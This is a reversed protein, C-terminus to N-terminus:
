FTAKDKIFKKTIKKYASEKLQGTRSCTVGMIKSIYDLTQPEESGIENIKKGISYLLVKYEKETLIEKLEQWFKEFYLKNVIDDYVLEDNSIFQELNCEDDESNVYCDLSLVEQKIRNLLRIHDESYGLNVKCESITPEIGNEKLYQIIYKNLREIDENDKVSIKFKRSYSNIAREIYTRIWYKAYTCLGAGKNIDYNEIAKILGLNGEQIIDLIDIGMSQCRIYYKNAIFIVFRLNSNILKIKAFEDGNHYMKFLRKEEELNLLPYQAMESHYLKLSDLTYDSDISKEIMEMFVIERKIAYAYIIM